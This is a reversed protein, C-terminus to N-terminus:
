NQDDVDTFFSRKVPATAVPITLCINALTNSFMAQLNDNRALVQPQQLICALCFNSHVKCMYLFFFCVRIVKLISIQGGGRSKYLYQINYAARKTHKRMKKYSMLTRELSNKSIPGIGNAIRLTRIIDILSHVWTRNQPSSSKKEEEKKKKGSGKKLGQM